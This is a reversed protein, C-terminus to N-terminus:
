LTPCLLAMSILRPDIDTPSCAAALVRGRDEGFKCGQLFLTVATLPVVAPKKRQPVCCHCCPMLLAM